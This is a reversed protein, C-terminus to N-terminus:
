HLRVPGGLIHCIIVAESRAPFQARWYRPV